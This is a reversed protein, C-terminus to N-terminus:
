RSRLLHHLCISQDYADGGRQHNKHRTDRIRPTAHTAATHAPGTATLAHAATILGTLGVLRSGLCAILTLIPELFLFPRLGSLLLPNLGLILVTDM